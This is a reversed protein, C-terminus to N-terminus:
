LVGTLGKEKGQVSKMLHEALWEVVPVPVANGLLEWAVSQREGELLRLPHDDPFGQAWLAELFTPFRYRGDGDYVFCTWRQSYPRTTVTPLLDDDTMIPRSFTRKGLAYRLAKPHVPYANKGDRIDEFRPRADPLALMPLVGERSEIIFVHGRKQPVFRACDVDLRQAWYGLRHLGQGIAEVAEQALGDVNEVVIFRPRLAEVWRLPLLLLRGEETDFGSLLGRARRGVSWPPCPPSAWLLFPERVGLAQPLFERLDALVAPGVTARYIRVAWPRVDVGTPKLGARRLGQGAGGAGCFLDLVEM